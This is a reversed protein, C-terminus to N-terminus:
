PLVSKKYYEGIAKYLSKKLQPRNSSDLLPNQNLLMNGLHITVAPSASASLLTEQGPISVSSSISPFDSELQNAILCGLYQSEESGPKVKVIVENAKTDSDEGLLLSIVSGKNGTMAVLDDEKPLPHSASRSESISIGSLQSRATAASLIDSTVQEEVMQYNPSSDVFNPNTKGPFAGEYSPNLLMSMVPSHSKPRICPNPVTITERNTGIATSSGKKIFVLSDQNKANFDFDSMENNQFYRHFRKDKVSPTNVTVWSNKVTVEYPSLDSAKPVYYVELEGPIHQLTNAMLGIDKSIYKKDLDKGTAQDYAWNWVLALVLLTFMVKGVRWIIENLSIDGRKSKRLKM